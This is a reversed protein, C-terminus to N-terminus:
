YIEGEPYNIKVEKQRSITAMAFSAPGVRGIFMLAIIVLKGNFGLLPTIGLSLGVTGMASVAEFIVEKFGLNTYHLILLIGTSLVIFYIITTGFAKLIQRRSITRNWIVVAERGKLVSFIAYIMIFFNTTKIGGGTSGPSAGIFMLLLMLFIGANSIRNLDVSNFGATRTTVSQFFSDIWSMQGKQFYYLLLTGVVILFLSVSLVIKSHLSFRRKEKYYAMIEFIVFYGLGGIIILLAVTTKILLNTGTLSQDYTSFGANCFASISHFFGQYLASKFGLGQWLYGATLLIMGVSETVFTIRLINKLVYDADHLSFNEQLQSFSLRHRLNVNGKLSLLVSSTITMIGIAGLQMLLLLILQGAINFGSTPVTVLGTVCVASTSTFVADIWHLGNTHKVFPLKLSLTGFAIIFIFSLVLYQWPNFKYKKFINLQM